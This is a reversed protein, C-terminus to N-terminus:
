RLLEKLSKLSTKITKWIVGEGECKDCAYEITINQNKNHDFSHYGLGKCAKCKFQKELKIKYSM